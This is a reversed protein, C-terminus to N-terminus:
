PATASIANSLAFGTVSGPDVILYQLYVTTGSPIGVPWIGNVTFAGAGNTFLQLYFGGSLANIDPVVTAGFFPADWRLAGVGLITTTNQLANGLVISYPANPQLTGSGCLNPAGFTGAFSSGLDAWPTTPTMGYAETATWGALWNANPAFAGRYKASCFFGDQPAYAVSTLAQNAPRPDLFTVPVMAKGGRVVPAGRTLTTVPSSGITANNNAAAMVGRATAETYAAGNNNNQFVSDTIECLNGSTQATYFLAPSAPANVTSTSTFPTTWTDAWSLTGNHGYGSAGDGDVNDFAVLKEGLDMFISNRIQIRANDRYACGHDGDLPQGIVTMNYLTVTSVPQWDSDEAGDGEICNDGVGSGQAANGSFGQVILGFQAKGRWGQDIDLSDDGITWISFYTHNVTGGWIQIGDDVNNM